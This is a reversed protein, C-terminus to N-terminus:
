SQQEEESIQKELKKLRTELDSDKLISSMISCAYAITSLQKETIQGSDLENIKQALYARVSKLTNLRKKRIM